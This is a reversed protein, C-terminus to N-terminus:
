NVIDDEDHHSDTLQLPEGAEEVDSATSEVPNAQPESLIDLQSQLMKQGTRCSQGEKLNDDKGDM